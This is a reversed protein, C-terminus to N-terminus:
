EGGKGSAGKLSELFGNVKQIAANRKIFENEPDPKCDPSGECGYMGGVKGCKMCHYHSTREDGSGCCPGSEVEGILEELASKLETYIKCDTM